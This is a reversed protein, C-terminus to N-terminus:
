VLQKARIKLLVDAHRGNSEWFSKPTLQANNHGSPGKYVVPATLPRYLAGVHTLLGDLIDINLVLTYQYANVKIHRLFVISGDSIVTTNCRSYRRQLGEEITTRVQNDHAVKTAWLSLNRSFEGERWDSLTELHQDAGIDM